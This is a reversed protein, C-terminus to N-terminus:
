TLIYEEEDGFTDPKGFMVIRRMRAFHEIGLIKVVIGTISYEHNLEIIQSAELLHRDDANYAESSTIVEGGGAGSTTVNLLVPVQNVGAIDRVIGYALVEPLPTTEASIWTSSDKFRYQLILKTPIIASVGGEANTILGRRKYEKNRTNAM